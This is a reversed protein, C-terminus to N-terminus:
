SETEEEDTESNSDPIEIITGSMELDINPTQWCWDNKEMEVVINKIINKNSSHIVAPMETKLYNNTNVMKDITFYVPLGVFQNSKLRSSGIIANKFATSMDVNKSKFMCKQSNAMGHFHLCVMNPFMKCFETVTYTGLNNISHVFDSARYQEHTTSVKGRKHGNSFMALAYSKAFGIKTDAYTGDSDDHPSLIIVKSHKTERLMMFAGSYSRVRPKSYFLLYSDSVEIDRENKTTKVRCVYLGLADASTMIIKTTEPTIGSITSDKFATLIKLMLKKEAVTPKHFSTAQNMAPGFLVFAGNPDTLVIPNALPMLDWDVKSTTGSTIIPTTM